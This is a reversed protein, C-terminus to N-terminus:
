VSNICRTMSSHRVLYWQNIAVGGVTIVVCGQVIAVGLVLDRQKIAVGRCAGGSSIVVGTKGIAVGRGPIVVCGRTGVRPETGGLGVIAPPM